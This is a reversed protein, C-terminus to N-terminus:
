TKQRAAEEMRRLMEPDNMSRTLWKNGGHSEPAFELFEGHAVGFSGVERRLPDNTPNNEISAKLDGEQEQPYEGPASSPFPLSSYKVGSRPGRSLNERLQERAANGMRELLLAAERTFAAKFGSNPKIEAM